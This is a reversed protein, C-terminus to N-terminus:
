AAVGCIVLFLSGDSGLRAKVSSVGQGFSMLALLCAVLSLQRMTLPTRVSLTGGLPLLLPDFCDILHSHNVQKRQVRKREKKKKIKIPM